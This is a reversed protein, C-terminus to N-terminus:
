KPTRWFGFVLLQKQNKSHQNKTVTQDWRLKCVFVTNTPYPIDKPDRRLKCVLVSDAPFTIGRPDRRLKCRAPARAQALFWPPFLLCVGVRGRAREWAYACARACVHVRERVCSCRYVSVRVHVRVFMYVWVRSGQYAPLGIVVIITIIVIIIRLM